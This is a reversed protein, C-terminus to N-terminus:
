NIRTAVSASELCSLEVRGLDMHPAVYRRAGPCRPFAVIRVGDDSGVSRDINPTLFLDPLKTIRCSLLSKSSALTPDLM